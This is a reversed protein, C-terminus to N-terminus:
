FAIKQMKTNEKLSGFSSSGQISAADKVMMKSGNALRV